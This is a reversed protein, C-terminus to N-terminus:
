GDKDVQKIQREIIDHFDQSTLGMSLADNILGKLRIKFNEEISAYLLPPQFHTIRARRGLRMNIIGQDRLKLYANRVTHMNVGLSNALERVSPLEDGPKLSGERVQERVQSVLQQYIPREDQEDISVLM